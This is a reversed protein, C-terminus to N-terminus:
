SQSQKDWREQEDKFVENWFTRSCDQHGCYKIGNWEVSWIYWLSVRHPLGSPCPPCLIDHIKKFPNM